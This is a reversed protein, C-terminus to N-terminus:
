GAPADLDIAALAGGELEAEGTIERVSGPPAHYGALTADDDAEIEAVVLGAHRGEFVDVVWGPGAAPWRHRCKVLEPFGPSLRERLVQYEPRTLYFTTMQRQDASLSHKQGLKYEVQGDPQEMRRLRLRLGTLYCDVIRTPPELGDPVGDLLFRREREIRAYRSM